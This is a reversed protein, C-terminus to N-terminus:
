IVMLAKYCLYVKTASRKSSSADPNSHHAQLPVNFWNNYSDHENNTYLIVSVLRTCDILIENNETFNLVIGWVNMLHFMYTHIYIYSGCLNNYDYMKYNINYCFM